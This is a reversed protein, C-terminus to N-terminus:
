SCRAPRDAMQALRALPTEILATNNMATADLVQGLWEPLAPNLYYYVWQGRREAELWGADRLTALHRSVKPQPAEFAETVECVCLTGQDRILLLAALRLEDALARFAAVPPPFVQSNM